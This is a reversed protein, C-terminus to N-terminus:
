GLIAIFGSTGISNIIAAAGFLVVPSAPLGPVGAAGGQSSQGQSHTHAPELLSPAGGLQDSAIAQVINPCKAKFPALPWM